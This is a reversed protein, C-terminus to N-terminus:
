KEVHKGNGNSLSGQYVKGDKVFYYYYENPEDTFVVEVDYEAAPNGVFKPNHHAELEKIDKNSYGKQNILYNYVTKELLKMHNDNKAFLYNCSLFVGLLVWFATLFIRKRM